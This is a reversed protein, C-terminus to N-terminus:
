AISKFYEFGCVKENKRMKNKKLKLHEDITEQEFMIEKNGSYVGEKSKYLDSMVVYFLQHDININKKHKSNIMSLFGNHSKAYFVDVFFFTGDERYVKFDSRMLSGDFYPSQVHVNVEGFKKLLFKYMECEKIRNRRQIYIRNDSFEKSKRKDMYDIDFLRYFVELNNIKGLVGNKISIHKAIRQATRSTPIDKDHKSIKDLEHSGPIGYSIFKEKMYNKYGDESNIRDLISKKPVGVKM